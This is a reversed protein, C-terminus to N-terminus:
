PIIEVSDYAETECCCKPCRDNCACDWEDTWRTGCESCEYFNRFTTQVEEVTPIDQM